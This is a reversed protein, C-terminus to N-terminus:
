VFSRAAPMTASICRATPARPLVPRAISPAAPAKIEKSGQFGVDGAFDQYDGTPKGDEFPQYIVRYGAQPSPARNWSGHFAIFAGDAYEGGLSDGEPFLIAMPAWHAPYAAIPDEFPDCRGVEKGDGGYEPGLVKKDMKPDYYCFPWGFNDGKDVAFLEEAPLHASQEQSYQEPWNSYLQDRGHQAGYLQGDHVTIAFMNRIGTAFRADPTFKQDAETASFQWIGGHNELLPCPDQGKSGPARDQEQCANSPAGNSVFLMDDKIALGRAAHVSQEPLGTVLHEAEDEPVLSDSLKYRYIDTVTAAYLWGDNIIMGTGGGMGFSKHEDAVGDGDSDRLAMLGHGDVDNALNVYVTGNDAVALHRPESADTAFETACFGDPLDLGATDCSEAALVAPAFLAGGALLASGSLLRSIPLRM